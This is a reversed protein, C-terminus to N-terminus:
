KQGELQEDEGMEKQKQYSMLNKENFVQNRYFM